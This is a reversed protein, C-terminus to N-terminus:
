NVLVDSFSAKINVTSNADKSGLYGTLSENDYSSSSKLNLAEPTKIKSRTGNYTFSYPSNPLSLEMDSNELTVDLNKFGPQLKEIKLKGFSGSLIGTEGIERFLIDSSQSNLKISRARDIRFDKVYRATLVGYDWNQVKVPSYSINVNTNKGALTNASFSGHSLDAKLNNTKGNLNIKGHRVKLDLAAKKPITIKLTKKAGEKKNKFIMINGPHDEGAEMEAEFHEAWKEMDKGFSEGWVEMEQGFKEGWAEMDKGFSEGWEEMEMEFNKMMASDKEMNLAWEEMSKEFDEDFNGEM